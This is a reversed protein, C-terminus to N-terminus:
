ATAVPLPKPLKLRAIFKKCWELMPIEFFRGMLIGAALSGAILLLTVLWVVFLGPTQGTVGLTLKMLIQQVPIHFLYISYSYRGLMQLIRLTRGPVASKRPPLNVIGLVILAACAAYHLNWPVWDTDTIREVVAALFLLISGTWLLGRAARGSLPYRLTWHCVVMGAVFQLVFPSSIVAAWPNAFEVGAVALMVIGASIVLWMISGAKRNVLMPVFLIYFMMEFVLTWAVRLMPITGYPFLLLDHVMRSVSIEGLAAPAFKWYVPLMTLCALWYIPFIRTLRRLVYILVERFSRGDKQNSYAIVFGSLVFFINVGLNGEIFFGWFLRVSFNQPLEVFGFGHHLLVVLAAVGRLAELGDLKRASTELAPTGPISPM